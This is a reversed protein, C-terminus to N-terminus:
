YMELNQETASDFSNCDVAVYVATRQANSARTDALIAPALSRIFEYRLTADTLQVCRLMEGERGRAESTSALVQNNAVAQSHLSEYVALTNHDIGQGISYFDVFVASASSRGGSERNAFCVSSLLLGITILSKM